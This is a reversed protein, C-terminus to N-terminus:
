WSASEAKTTSQDSPRGHLDWCKDVTHNLRGCHLCAKSTKTKFKSQVTARFAGNEAKITTDSLVRSTAEDQRLEEALLRASVVDFTVEEPPRSELAITIFDYSEPLSCLLTIALDGDGIPSGIATLQESLDRVTNIHDQMRTGGALKLNLLKRRLFVKAALGKQEYVSCVKVWAERSTVANRIHGIVTNSVTLAIQALAQQDGEQWESWEKASATPVPAPVTDDVYKWLRRSKLILQVRYKWTTFNTASLLEVSYLSRAAKDADSSVPLSM